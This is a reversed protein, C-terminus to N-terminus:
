DFTVKYANELYPELIRCVSVMRINLSLKKRNEGEGVPGGLCAILINGRTEM